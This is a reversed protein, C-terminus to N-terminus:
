SVYHNMAGEGTMPALGPGGKTLDPVPLIKVDPTQWAKKSVDEPQVKQALKEKPEKM